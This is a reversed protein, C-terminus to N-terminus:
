GAVAIMHADCESRKGFWCEPCFFLLMKRRVRAAGKVTTHCCRNCVIKRGVLRRVM